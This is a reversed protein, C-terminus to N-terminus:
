NSGRFRYLPKRKLNMFRSMFIKIQMHSMIDIRYRRVHIWIMSARIINPEM